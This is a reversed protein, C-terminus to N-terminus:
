ASAELRFLRDDNNWDVVADPARFDPNNSIIALM